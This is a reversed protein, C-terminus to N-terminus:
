IEQCSCLALCDDCDDPFSVHGCTCVRWACIPIPGGILLDVGIVHLRHLITCRVLHQGEMSPADSNDIPPNHHDDCLGCMNSCSLILMINTVYMSMNVHTFQTINSIPDNFKVLILVHSLFDKGHAEGIIVTTKFGITVLCAGVCLLFNVEPIYLQGSYQRSTHLIKVRPFCNLTQLHSITAFACSIMAQSGIISAAVALIFTPWFM